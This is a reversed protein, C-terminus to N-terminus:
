KEYFEVDNLALIIKECISSIQANSLVVNQFRIDNGSAKNAALILGIKVHNYLDLIDDDKSAKNSIVESNYEGHYRSILRNDETSQTIKYILDVNFRGSEKFSTNSDIVVNLLSKDTTFFLRSDIKASVTVIGGSKIEM